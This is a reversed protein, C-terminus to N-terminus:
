FDLDGSPSFDYWDCNTGDNNWNYFPSLLQTLGNDGFRTIEFNEAKM